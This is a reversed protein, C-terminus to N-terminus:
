LREVGAQPRLDRRWHLPAAFSPLVGPGAAVVHPIAQMCAAITGHYGPDTRVAGIEYHRRRDALSARLDIVMRASPTGDMEVVWYEGPRIGDPLNETGLYWNLELGFFPEAGIADVWGAFRHTVRGVTGAAAVVGAVAVDVETPVFDHREEVRDFAVGLAREMSRGVSWLINKSIMAGAPLEQAQDVPMGIGVLGLLAPDLGAVPWNERITLSRLDTCMGTLSLALRESVLDPSLGTAHFSASGDRCARSLRANFEPERWLAANNYPIPTVVNRGSRLLGLIEEDTNNDGTDRGCYLVCDCDIELAADADTTIAVGLPDVGLLEGVDRGHKSPSYGRVGVVRFDARRALEWVAVSGMKGPGYVVVRYPDVRSM